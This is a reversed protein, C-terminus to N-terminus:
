RDQDTLDNRKLPSTTDFCWSFIDYNEIIQETTELRQRLKNIKQQSGPNNIFVTDSNLLVIKAELERKLALLDITTKM